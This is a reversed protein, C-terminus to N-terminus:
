ENIKKLISVENDIYEESEMVMIENLLTTINTKFVRVETFDFNILSYVYNLRLLMYHLEPTGYLDKSLLRPNFRYKKYEEETLQVIVTHELLLEYYKEYLNYMNVIFLEGSSNKIIEKFSLDKINLKLHKGDDIVSQITSRRRYNLSM